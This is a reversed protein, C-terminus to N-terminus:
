SKSARLRFYERWEGMMRKLLWGASVFSIGASRQAYITLPFAALTGLHTAEQFSLVIVSGLSKLLSRPLREQVFSANEENRGRM